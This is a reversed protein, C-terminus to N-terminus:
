KGKQGTANKKSLQKLAATAAERVYENQDHQAESLAKRVVPSSQGLEGLFECAFARTSVDRDCLCGLLRPIVKENKPDISGLAYAFYSRMDLGRAVAKPGIGLYRDEDGDVVKELAPVAAKARAGIAALSIAAAKRIDENDHQLQVALVTTAEKAEPGIAKLVWVLQLRTDDDKATNLVKIIAPVAKRSKAGFRGLSTAAGSNADVELAAALASVVADEGDTIEGLAAAVAVRVDASKEAKLSELLSPVASKAKRGLRGLIIAAMKRARADDEGLTNKALVPVVPDGLEILMALARYYAGVGEAALVARFREQVVREDVPCGHASASLNTLLLLGILPIAIM